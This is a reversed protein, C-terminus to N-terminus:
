VHARGIQGDLGKRARTEERIGNEKYAGDCIKLDVKGLPGAIQDEVLTEDTDWEDTELGPENETITIDDQSHVEIEEYAQSDHGPLECESEKTDQSSDTNKHYGSPRPLPSSPLPIQEPSLEKKVPIRELALVEEHVPESKLLPEWKLLPDSKPKKLVNPLPIEVLPNRKPWTESKLLATEKSLTPQDVQLSDVREFDEKSAKLHRAESGNGIKMAMLSAEYHDLLKKATVVEGNEEMTGVVEKWRIKLIGGPGYPEAKKIFDAWARLVQEAREKSIEFWEQHSKRCGKCMRERRWEKILENHTLTEVRQAHPLRSVSFLLNPKYGCKSWDELRHPIPKATWGIKVHGPSSARDFMYLSGTEFDRGKLPNLFKRYVSNRPLPGAKHPRFESLPTQSVSPSETSSNNGKRPRFDYRPQSDIPQSANEVVTSFRRTSEQSSSSRVVPTAPAANTNCPPADRQIEDQWRLSLPMLFGVDEIRDRHRARGSRCCSCLVYEQLLDLSVAECPMSRIAKQLTIARKNDSNSCSVRCRAGKQTFYICQRQKSPDLEHFPIFFSVSPNFPM